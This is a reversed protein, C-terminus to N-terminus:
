AMVGGGEVTAKAAVAVMAANGEEASPQWVVKATMKAAM